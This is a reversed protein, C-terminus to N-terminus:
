DEESVYFMWYTGNGTRLAAMSGAGLEDVAGRKGETIRVGSEMRWSQGDSSFASYIRPPKERTQNVLRNFYMRYGGPVSITSTIFGNLPLYREFAFSRGGDVSTSSITKGDQSLFMRWVRGVQIVDPDMAREYKFRDGSERTFRIGDDSIASAITFPGELSLPIGKGMPHEYFYMRYRGDALHVTDPDLAIKDLPLGAITVRREEWRVGNSSIVVYVNTDRCFYVLMRDGDFCAGPTNARMAIIRKDKEWSLGDSSVASVLNGAPMRTRSSKKSSAASKQAYKVPRRPSRPITKFQVTQFVPQETALGDLQVAGLFVVALIASSVLAVTRPVVELNRPRFEM